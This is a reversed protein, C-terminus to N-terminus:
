VETRSTNAAPRARWKALRDESADLRERLYFADSESNTSIAGLVGVIVSELLILASTEPDGDGPVVQLIQRCIEPAVVNHRIRVAETM